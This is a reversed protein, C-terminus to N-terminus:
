LSKEKRKNKYKNPEDSGSKDSQDEKSKNKKPHRSRLYDYIKTM